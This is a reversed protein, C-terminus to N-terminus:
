APTQATLTLEEVRINHTVNASAFEIKHDIGRCVYEVPGPLPQWASWTPAGAPDDNTV